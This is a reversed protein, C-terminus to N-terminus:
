LKSNFIGGEFSGINISEFYVAYLLPSEAISAESCMRMSMDSILQLGLQGFM